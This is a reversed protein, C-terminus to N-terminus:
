FDGIDGWSFEITRTDYSIDGGLGKTTDLSKGDYYRYRKRIIM